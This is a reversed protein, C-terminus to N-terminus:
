KEESTGFLYACLKIQCSEKGGRKMKSVWLVRELKSQRARILWSYCQSIGKIKATLDQSAEWLANFIRHKWGKIARSTWSIVDHANTKYPNPKM